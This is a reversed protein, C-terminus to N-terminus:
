GQVACFMVYIKAYQSAWSAEAAILTSRDGDLPPNPTVSFAFWNRFPHCKRGTWSCLHCRAQLLGAQDTTSTRLDEDNANQEFGRV